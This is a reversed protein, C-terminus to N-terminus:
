VPSTTGARGLRGRPDLLAYLAPVLVLVLIGSVAFGGIVGIALPQILQSGQGIAFALPMLALGTALVTMAVPRARRRSANVWAERVGIGRRLELRAEHIVFIANEGTIGVMMIAAVFSSINLTMGTLSLMTFVGALSGLAVLVTVIPARWDGFEVLIVVAVLALGALLVLLLQAFSQQQQQYIGGYVISITPDRPLQSAIAAQIDAIVSGLDRGALRATVAIYSRLNERDIETEPPGTTITALRNVPLQAGSPTRVLVSGLDAVGQDFVRLNYLKPGVLVQGVVTGSIAPQLAAHLDATTMQARALEDRNVRIELAPGAIVVGDFVDAVGPVNTIIKAVQKARQEILAQDDGFVQIEIPQAKGGTLDGINDELLQGFDIHLAPETLTIKQRLEEIVTDIPRRQGLPKLQIVYDGRNPETINFGLQTGTRRSYSEVDPTAMIIKEAENLMADTDSLSTGPPSWYDLIIAGEDMHPMFDTGLMGRAIWAAILFGSMIVLSVVRFRIAGRVMSTYARTPTHARTSRGGRHRSWYGRLRISWAREKTHGSGIAIPVVAFAVFFSVVLALAMTLALPKFFAGVVGGLLAFPLMIVITSLSSGVLATMIEALGTTVPDPDGSEAHRHVNEVVVIADDVILGIAAAFGALTMLNLTQGFVALGLGVVAAVVPVTLIAVFAFRLNRLFVMLVLFALGVGILVADRTGSIAGSVFSAQDYFMTWKVGQPILTPQDRLLQDVASAIALTSATPQRVINVLVAPKGNATTRIYSVEDATRVKGLEGLRAPVGNPVPIAIRALEDISEARGDVLSLYLEHNKEVLGASLVQNDARVAMVVDAASLGRGLLADHDLVVEFERFRGGQIQVQSVGPIRVLAPLLTYDALDRLEAQTKTDSTLAYGMIPFISTNMWEIDWGTGAPLLTRIREVEKMVLTLATPLDTTWSFQGTLESSGRSTISRVLQIGPVRLIAEELPRTVTPMMQAAPQDGVSAITRILPFTVTPFISSPMGAVEYAGLGVLIALILVIGSARRRIGDARLM